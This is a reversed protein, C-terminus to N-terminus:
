VKKLDPNMVEFVSEITPELSILKKVLDDLRNSKKLMIFSVQAEKTTEGVRVVLHRVYGTNTKSDMADIGFTNTLSMITRLIRNIDEHQIPCGEIQIFQNSNRAYMGFYNKGKIKQVPLSAKNRYNKPNIAGKVSKVIEPNIKLGAYRDFSKLLIDRKNDLITN